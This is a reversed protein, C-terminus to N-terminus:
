SAVYREQYITAITLFLIGIIPGYFVGAVGYVSMGAIITFLVFLSNIKIRQGIFKPKFWNEVWLAILSSTVLLFVGSVVKGTIMFYISVPVTIISIGLLPIFALVIMVFTWLLPSSVGLIYFLIGALGGQIIGGVGNCVLSVYNMQNFRKLLLEEDDASLPSLTFIYKKLTKGEALFAYMTLITISFNFLFSFINGIFKNIKELASASTSKSFELIFNKIEEWQTNIGLNELAHRFTVCIIHDSEYFDRIGQEELLYGLSDYLNLGEKSIRILVLILPVLIAVTCLLSCILASLSPSLSKKQVFFRNMPALSGALIAGFIIPAFLPSFLHFLFYFIISFVIIFFIIEINKRNM